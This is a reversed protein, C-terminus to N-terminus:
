FRHRLGWIIAANVLWPPVAVCDGGSERALSNDFSWEVAKVITLGAFMSANFLTVIWFGALKNKTKPCSSQYFKTGEDALKECSQACCEM